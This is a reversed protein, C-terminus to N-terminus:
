AGTLLCKGADEIADPNPSQIHSPNQLHSLRQMAKGETEARCKIERSGGTLIKNGRGLLVSTNVKPIGEGQSEYPRQIKDQTIWVKPSIDV